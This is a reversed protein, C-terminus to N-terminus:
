AFDDAAWPFPLGPAILLLAHSNGRKYRTSNRSVRHRVMRAKADAWSGRPYSIRLRIHFGGRYIAPM